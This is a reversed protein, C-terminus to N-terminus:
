EEEGEKRAVQEINIVEFCEPQLNRENLFEVMVGGLRRNLEVEDEQSLHWNDAADGAEEYLLEGLVCDADWYFDDATFEIAVSEGIYGEGYEERVSEVAEKKTDFGDYFLEGDASTCWEGMKTFKM